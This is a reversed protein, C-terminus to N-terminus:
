IPKAAKQEELARLMFALAGIVASLEDDGGFIIELKNCDTEPGGNIRVRMDTSSADELRLYTRSGHGTDGNCLGTTGAEYGLTCYVDHESAKTQIQTGDPLKRIGTQVKDIIRYEQDVIISVM